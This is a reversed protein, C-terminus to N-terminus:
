LLFGPIGCPDNRTKKGYVSRGEAVRFLDYGRLVAVVVGNRTIEVDEYQSYKLYAGFNNQIETSTVQM